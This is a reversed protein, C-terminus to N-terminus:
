INQIIEKRFLYLLYEVEFCWFFPSRGTILWAELHFNTNTPTERQSIVEDIFVHSTTDCKASEHGGLFFDARCTKHRLSPTGLKTSHFFLNLTTKINQWPKNLKSELGCRRVQQNSHKMTKCIGTSLCLKASFVNTFVFIHICAVQVLRKWCYVPRCTACVQRIKLKEKQLSTGITRPGMKSVHGHKRESSARPFFFDRFM